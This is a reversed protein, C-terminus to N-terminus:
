QFRHMSIGTICGVVFHTDDAVCLRDRDLEDVGILCRMFANTHSTGNQELRSAVRARNASRWDNSPHLTPILCALQHM